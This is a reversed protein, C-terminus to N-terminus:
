TLTSATESTVSQAPVPESGGGVGCRAASSSSIFRRSTSSDWRLARRAAVRRHHQHPREQPGADLFAIPEVDFDANGALAFGRADAVAPQEGRPEGFHGHEAFLNAFAVHQAHGFPRHQDIRRGIRFVFGASAVRPRMRPPPTASLDRGSPRTILSWCLDIRM